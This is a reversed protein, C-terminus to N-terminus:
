SRGGWEKNVFKSVKYMEGETMTQPYINVIVNRSSKNSINNRIYEANEKKSLVREGEHLRAYYNNYPVYALGDAHGQASERVAQITALAQSAGQVAGIRPTITLLNSLQRALGSAKTRLQSNWNENNLGNLIGKLVNKGQEESLNGEKLGKMVEDVDEIGAEKLLERQEDDTLGSMFGQLTELASKRAETSKELEDTVRIALDKTAQEAGPTGYVIEGTLEQIKQQMEPPMEALKKAYVDYSDTALFKWAEVIQPTNEEILSTHSELEDILNSIRAETEEIQKKTKEEEAVNNSEIAQKQLEESISLYTQQEQIMQKYTIAVTEGNKQYTRGTSDILKTLSETTNEAVLQSAYNYDNIDRTYGEVEKKTNNYSNRLNELNKETASIDLEIKFSRALSGTRDNKVYNLIFQNMEDYTM